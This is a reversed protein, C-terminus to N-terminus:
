QGILAELTNAIAQPSDVGGFLKLYQGNKGMLLILNTHNVLYDGQGTGGTKSFSIKYNKAINKINSLEGTLGIFSPHFGQMYDKLEAVTDREPDVSIFIPQIDATSIKKAELMNLAATMKALEIPCVDPCFSYGFYILQYKGRFDTDQVTKGHHSTLTFPGGLSDGSSRLKNNDSSNKTLMQGVLLVGVILVLTWLIYRVAKM